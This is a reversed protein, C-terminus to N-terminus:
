VLDDLYPEKWGPPKVVKGDERYHPKGDPHLKEMNSAHVRRFAEDFDWGLEVATGRIFYDLDVLADLFAVPNGDVLAEWGERMEEEMMKMRFKLREKYEFTIGNIPLAFDAHFQRVRDTDSM